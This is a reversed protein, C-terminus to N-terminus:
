GLWPKVYSELERDGMRPLRKLDYAVSSLPCRNAANPAWKMLEDLDSLLSGEDSVEMSGDKVVRLGVPGISKDLDMKEKESFGIKEVIKGVATASNGDVLLKLAAVGYPLMRWDYHGSLRALPPKLRVTVGSDVLIFEGSRLVLDGSAPDNRAREVQRESEACYTLITM